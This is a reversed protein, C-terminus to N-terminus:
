VNDLSKDRGMVMRFVTKYELRELAEIDPEYDCESCYGDLMASLTDYREENDHELSLAHSIQDKEKEGLLSTLYGDRCRPCLGYYKKEVVDHQLLFMLIQDAQKQNKTVRWFGSVYNGVRFQVLFKDLEIKQEETLFTIDRLIPFRHVGLLEPYEEKKMEETMKRIEFSISRLDFNSVQGALTNLEQRTHQKRLEEIDISRLFSDFERYKSLITEFTSM